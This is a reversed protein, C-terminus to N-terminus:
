GRVEFPPLEEHRWPPLKGHRGVALLGIGRWLEPRARTLADVAGRRIFLFRCPTLSTLSTIHDSGALFEAEGLWSGAQFSNLMSPGHSTWITEM